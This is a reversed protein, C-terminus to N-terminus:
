SCLVQQFILEKTRKGLLDNPLISPCFWCFASKFKILEPKYDSSVYCLDGDDLCISEGIIEEWLQKDFKKMSEIDDEFMSRAIQACTHTTFFRDIEEKITNTMTM